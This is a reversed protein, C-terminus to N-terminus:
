VGMLTQQLREIVEPVTDIAVKATGSLTAALIMVNIMVRIPFGIVLVNIQPVTHGLFGLTLGVLSMTSLLPASVQVGLVLSEHVLRSLVDIAAADVFADGVPLTQFTEILARIMMLHYGSPEVLLLVTFALMFLFQGTISGNMDLAPNAIEGLGIGTQQDIMEGALQMGSLITLVGIGLILGLAFEGAAVWGYDLLTAPPALTYRFETTTLGADASSRASALMQDYRELLHEPVEDRTLRGNRDEDLKRFGIKAQDHLTPTVLLATTFVIFVRVNAPVLSQGFLPGIAMLGSMRVLVLTFAYFQGLALDLFKQATWQTSPEVFMRHLFEDM